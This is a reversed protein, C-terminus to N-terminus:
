AREVEIVDWGWGEGFKPDDQTWRIQAATFEGMRGNRFRVKLKMEGTKPERGMTPKM